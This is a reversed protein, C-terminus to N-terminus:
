CARDGAIGEALEGEDVVERARGGRSDGRRPPQEDEVLAVEVREDVAVGPNGEHHRAVERPQEGHVRPANRHERGLRARPRGARQSAPGAGRTPRGRPGRRAPGHGAGARTGRPRRQGIEQARRDRPRVCQGDPAAHRHARQEDDDDGHQDDGAEQEPRTHESLARCHHVVKRRERPLDVDAEVGRHAIQGLRRRRNPAEQGLTPVPDLSEDEVAAKALRAIEELV